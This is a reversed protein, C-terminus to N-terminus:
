DVEAEGAVALDHLVAHGVRAQEGFGEFCCAPVGTDGVDVAGDACVGEEARGGSDEAFFIFGGCVVVRTEGDDGKAEAIFELLFERMQFLIGDRFQQTCFLVDDRIIRQWRILIPNLNQPHHNPLAHRKIQQIPQNTINTRRRLIQNLIILRIQTNQGLTLIIARLLFMRTRPAMRIALGLPPSALPRHTLTYM